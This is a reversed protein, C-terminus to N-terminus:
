SGCPASSKQDAKSPATPACPPPPVGETPPRSGRCPPVGEPDLLALERIEELLSYLNPTKTQSFEREEKSLRPRRAAEQQAEQQAEQALRVVERVLQSSSRGPPEPQDTQPEAPRRHPGNVVLELVLADAHCHTSRVSIRVQPSDRFTVM